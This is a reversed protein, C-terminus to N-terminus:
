KKFDSCALSMHLMSRDNLLTDKYIKFGVKHYSAIARSNDTFVELRITKLKYTEFAFNCLMKTAEMGYGKGLAQQVGIFIRGLEAEKKDLDIHYLSLMGIPQNIGQIEEIVFNLEDKKKLYEHFWKQQGEITIEKADIFWKRIDRQNRWLRIKELDKELLPRLNIKEGWIKYQHEM